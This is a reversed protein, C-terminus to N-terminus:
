KGWFVLFQDLIPRSADDKPMNGEPADTTETHDALDGASKFVDARPVAVLFM